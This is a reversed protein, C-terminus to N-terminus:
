AHRVSSGASSISVDGGSRVSSVTNKRGIKDSRTKNSASTVTRELLGPIGWKSGQREKKPTKNSGLSFVSQMKMTKISSAKISSNISMTDFAADNPNYEGPNLSGPNAGSGDANLGAVGMAISNRTEVDILGTVYERPFLGWKGKANMGSWCWFDEYPFGIHTIKEKKSFNLWESNPEKQKHDWLATAVLGSKPNMLIDEKNPPSQLQIFSVPFCLKSNDHYGSAWEGKFQPPFTLGVIKAGVAFSLSHNGEPDRARFGKSKERHNANAIASPLSATKQAVDGYYPPSQDMDLFCIDFDTVGKQSGYIVKLGEIERLPRAHKQIHAFYQQSSFFVTADQEEVTHGDEICFICAYSPEDLKSALHSKQLVRHRFRIGPIGQPSYIGAVDLKQDREYVSQGVEYYCSICKM